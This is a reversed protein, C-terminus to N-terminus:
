GAKSRKKELLLKGSMVLSKLTKGVAKQIANIKALVLKRSAMLGVLQLDRYKNDHTPGREIFWAQVSVNVTVEVMQPRKEISANEVSRLYGEMLEKAIRQETEDPPLIGKGICNSGIPLERLKHVIKAAM